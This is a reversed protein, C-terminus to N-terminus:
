REARMKRCPDFEVGGREIAAKRLARCLQTDRGANLANYVARRSVKFERALKTREGAPLMIM